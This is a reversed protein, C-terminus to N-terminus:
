RLLLDELAGVVRDLEDDSMGSGSPLCLGREFVRASTGNVRAPAASFLPQLHMPKWTPRSEVDVVELAERVAERGPTASPDLSLCTLWYNSTGYDPPELFTMGPADGLVSRYREHIQRRREIREPLTQLQGRVFAALLISLRYNYGVELHEYDPATERAQTSLKRARPCQSRRPV